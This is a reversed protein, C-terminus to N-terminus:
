LVLLHHFFSLSVFAVTPLPGQFLRLYFFFSLVHKSHQIDILDLTLSLSLSCTHWLVKGPLTATGLTLTHSHTHVLHLSFGLLDPDGLFVLVEYRSMYVHGSRMGALSTSYYCMGCRDMVFVIYMCFCHKLTLCM